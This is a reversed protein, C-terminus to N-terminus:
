TSTSTRPTSNQTVTGQASTSQTCLSSDEAREGGHRELAKMEEEAEVCWKVEMGGAQQVRNRTGNWLSWKLQPAQWVGQVSESFNDSWTHINVM